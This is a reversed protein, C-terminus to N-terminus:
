CGSVKSPDGKDDADEEEEEKTISSYDVIAKAIPTHGMKGFVGKLFHVLNNHRAQQEELLVLLLENATQLDAITDRQELEYQNFAVLNDGVSKARVLALNEIRELRTYLDLFFQQGVIEHCIYDLTPLHKFRYELERDLKATEIQRDKLTAYVNKIVPHDALRDWHAEVTSQELALTAIQRTPNRTWKAGPGGLDILVHRMDRALTSMAENTSALGKTLIKFESRLVN